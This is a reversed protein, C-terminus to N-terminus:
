KARVVQKSATIAVAAHSCSTVTSAGPTGSLMLMRLPRLCLHTVALVAVQSEIDNIMPKM